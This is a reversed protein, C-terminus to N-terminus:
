EGRSECVVFELTNTATVKCGSLELVANLVVHRLSVREFCEGNLEGVTIAIPDDGVDITVLRTLIDNHRSTVLAPQGETDLDNM